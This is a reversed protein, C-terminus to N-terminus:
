FVVARFARSRIDASAPGIPFTSHREVGGAWILFCASNCQDDPSNTGVHVGIMLERVLRGLKIAEIVNGGASNIWLSSPWGPHEALSGIEGIQENLFKVFREYDGKVIEGDISVAYSSSGPAIFDAVAIDAAEVDFSILWVVVGLFLQIKKM